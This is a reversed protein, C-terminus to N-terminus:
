RNIKEQRNPHPFLLFSFLLSLFSFFFLGFAPWFERIMVTWINVLTFLVLYAYKHLPLIFPFVHYPIGQAYGDLPHFAHSAYPTPVIWKHHSKHMHRYIAPHHLGRHIWYICGDTFALFLPFQLLMYWWGYKDVDLYLLSYGKVECYFLPATLVAMVPMSVVSQYIEQRIQNKLFKPHKFTDKDFIFVYSLTAFFFYIICGFM